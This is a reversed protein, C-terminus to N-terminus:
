FFHNKCDVWQSGTWSFCRATLTGGEANATPQWKIQLTSRIKESNAKTDLVPGVAELRRWGGTSTWLWADWFHWRTAAAEMEGFESETLNEAALELEQELLPLSEWLTGKAIRQVFRGGKRKTSVGRMSQPVAGRHTLQVGRTGTARFAATNPVRKKKGTADKRHTPLLGQKALSRTVTGEAMNIASKQRIFGLSIRYSTLPEQHRAPFEFHQAIRTALDQNETKGSDVEQNNRYIVYLGRKGRGFRIANAVTYPGKWDITAQGSRKTELEAGDVLQAAVELEAEFERQKRRYKMRRDKKEAAGPRRKTHKDWTSGSVNSDHGQPPGVPAGTTASPNSDYRTGCSKCIWLRGRKEVVGGCTCFGVEFDGGLEGAAAELQYGLANM